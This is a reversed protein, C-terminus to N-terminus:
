VGNLRAKIFRVFFKISFSIIALACFSYFFWILVLPGLNQWKIQCKDETIYECFEQTPNHDLAANGIFIAILISIVLPTLLYISKGKLVKGV